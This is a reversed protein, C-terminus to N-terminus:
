AVFLSKIVWITPWFKQYFLASFGDPGPAKTPNMQKLALGIEEMIFPAIPKNNMDVTVLNQVKNLVCDM